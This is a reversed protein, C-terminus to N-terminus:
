NGNKIVELKNYLEVLTKFVDWYKSIEDRTLIKLKYQDNQILLIAFQEAEYGEERLLVDYAALQFFMSDYFNKSTKFDLLTKKGNIYGFFDTTGAFGEKTSILSKECFIPEVDYDKLFEKFSLYRHGVERLINISKADYKLYTDGMLTCECLYHVYTGIRSSRELEKDVSIRKFGLYNAWQQLGEKNLLKIITTVSPYEVGNKIYSQHTNIKEKKKM